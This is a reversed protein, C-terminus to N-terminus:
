YVFTVLCLILVLIWICGSSSVSVYLLLTNYKKKRRRRRNKTQKNIEKSEFINFEGACASACGFQRDTILFENNRKMSKVIECPTLLVFVFFFLFISYLFLAMIFHLFNFIRKKKRRKATTHQMTTNENSNFRKWHITVDDILFVSLRGSNSDCMWEFLFFFWNKM